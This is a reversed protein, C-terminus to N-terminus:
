LVSEKEVLTQTTSLKSINQLDNPNFDDAMSTSSYPLRPVRELHPETKEFRLERRKKLELQKERQDRLNINTMPETSIQKIVYDWKRGKLETPRDNHHGNHSDHLVPLEQKSVGYKPSSEAQDQVRVKPPSIVSEKPNIGINTRRISVHPGTPTIYRVREKKPSSRSSPSNVLRDGNMHAGKRSHKPSFLATNSDTISLCTSGIAPQRRKPSAALRPIIMIAADKDAPLKAVKDSHHTGCSYKPPNSDTDIPIVAVKSYIDWLKSRERSSSRISGRISGPKNFKREREARSEDPGARESGFHSDRASKNETIENEVFGVMSPSRPARLIAPVPKSRHESTSLNRHLELSPFPVENQMAKTKGRQLKELEQRLQEAEMQLRKMEALCEPDNCYHSTNSRYQNKEKDNRPQKAVIISCLKADMTRQLQARLYRHVIHELFLILSCILMGCLLLLFASIFNKVGLTKNTNGLAADKRCTGTQWFKKWRQLKGNKQYDLIRSNVKELWKNGKAFGIGYGTMAYLNGVIRLKCGEDRSVWYNLVHADYIFANLEGSRLAKLGEEVTSRNFKRMYAGMEPFNIKINEETAGSPITAFRFPPKVNWPQQLRWDNMGSLDYYDEKAIMFAALNATYSALFVLAFLAWINALFRSAVGRPNDANVAAGFLMSWILWFSRFLSFRYGSADMRGRDLGNPSLWEFLFLAAGSAHVSFVLILCWCQYDYPKLFATPSIAGERLAVTVAIGTEMFPVSFEVQQSRNPTIKLATVAMDAERDMLTRILGNWGDPTWAGWLGDPVEFLDVDFNLDKMLEMLLDMTLGTCCGNVYETHNKTSSTNNNSELTDTHGLKRAKPESVDDSRYSHSVRNSGSEQKPPDM